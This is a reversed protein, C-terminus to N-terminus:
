EMREADQVQELPMLAAMTLAESYDGAEALARAQQDYPVPALRRIGIEGSVALYVSGDSGLSPAIAGIDRLPLVQVHLEFSLFMLSPPRTGCSVVIDHSTAPASCVLWVCVSQHELPLRHVRKVHEFAACEALAPLHM